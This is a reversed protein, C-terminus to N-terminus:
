KCTVMIPIQYLINQINWCFSEYSNSTTILKLWIDLGQSTVHVFIHCIRKLRNLLSWVKVSFNSSVLHTSLLQLHFFSLCFGYISPCVCATFPLLVSVLRLHFFSLCFGYISSPCVCATFPLVSLLQLHFSLCFFFSLLVFVCLVVCFVISREVHVGGFIPSSILHEPLTLLEQEGHPVHWTLRIVSITVAYGHITYLSSKYVNMTVKCSTLLYYRNTLSEVDYDM